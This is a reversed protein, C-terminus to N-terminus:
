LRSGQYTNGELLIRISTPKGDEVEFSIEAGLGPVFFKHEAYPTLPMMDNEDPGGSLQGDNLKVVFPFQETQYFGVYTELMKEPVEIARKETPTAKSILTGTQRYARNQYTLSKPTDESSPLRDGTLKIIREKGGPFAYLGTFRELMSRTAVIEDKPSPYPTGLCIAAAKLLAPTPSGHETNQLAILYLNTEPLYIIRSKYGPEFGTHEYCFTGAIEDVDWGYYPTEKEQNTPPFMRKLAPQAVIKGNLLAQMWKNLDRATTMLGGASFSYGHPTARILGRDDDFSYPTTRGPLVSFFDTFSSAGMGAPSFINDRLYEEFPQNSVSEIVKGLLLYGTNSYGYAAGPSFEPDAALALEIIDDVSPENRIVERVKKIRPYDKVGSTHNVLQLLTIPTEPFSYTPLHDQITESFSL